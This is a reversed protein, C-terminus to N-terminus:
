WTNRRGGDGLEGGEEGAAIILPANGFLFRFILQKKEHKQSDSSLGM